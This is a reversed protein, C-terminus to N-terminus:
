VGEAPKAAAEKAQALLNGPVQVEYEKAMVMSSSMFSRKNRSMAFRIINFMMGVGAAILVPQIVNSVAIVSVDAGAPVPSFLSLVFGIFAGTTAGSLAVKGYNMRGRIREVTKLDKGVIAIATVPFNAEVLKEVLAVAETYEGFSALVEGQAHVAPTRSFNRQGNNM